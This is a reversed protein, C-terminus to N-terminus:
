NVTADPVSWGSFAGGLPRGNLTGTFFPGASFLYIMGKTGTTKGGANAPATSPRM